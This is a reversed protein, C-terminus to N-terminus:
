APKESGHPTASASCRKLLMDRTSGMGYRNVTSSMAAVKRLSADLTGADVAAERCIGQLELLADRSDREQDKM